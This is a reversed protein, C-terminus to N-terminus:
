NETKQVRMGVSLVNKLPDDRMIHNIKYSYSGTKKFKCPVLTLKKRTEWIDGMGIGHWGYKDDGLELNIKEVNISDGPAQTELNIWLNNYAYADTHRVVLYINYPSSTDSVCFKGSCSYNSKWEQNPISTHLEYLNIQNCSLAFTILITLLVAPHNKM